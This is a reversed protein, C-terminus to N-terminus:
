RTPQDSPSLKSLLQDFEPPMTSAATIANEVKRATARSHARGLLLAAQNLNPLAAELLSSELAEIESPSVGEGAALHRLRSLMTPLASRSRLRFALVPDIGALLTVSDEYRQQVTSELPATQKLKSLVLEIGAVHHRVELLDALATALIRRREAHARLWWAVGSLMSGLVVGVLPALIQLAEL